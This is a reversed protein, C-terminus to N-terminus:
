SRQVESLDFCKQDVAIEPARWQPGCTVYIELTTCRNLSMPLLIYKTNVMFAIIALEYVVSQAALEGESIIGALFSGIELM